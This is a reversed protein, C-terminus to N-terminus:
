QLPMSFPVGESAEVGRGIRTVAKVLRGDLRLLQDGLEIMRKNPTAMPSNSRLRDVLTDMNQASNYQAIILLAAATSRSIGMWCHVLMSGQGNWDKSFDLLENIQGESALLLGPAATHIDNFELALHKATIQAPCPPSKNPASLSIMWEARSAILTNELASLPAIFLNSM